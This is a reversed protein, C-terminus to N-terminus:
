DSGGNLYSQFDAPKDQAALYVPPILQTKQGFKRCIPRAKKQLSPNLKYFNDQSRRRAPRMQSIMM